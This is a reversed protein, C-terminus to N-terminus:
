GPGHRRNKRRHRVFPAPHGRENPRLNRIGYREKLFRALDEEFIAQSQEFTQLLSNADPGGKGAAM